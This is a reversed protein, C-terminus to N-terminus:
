PKRTITSWRHKEPMVGSFGELERKVPRKAVPEKRNGPLGSMEKELIGLHERVDKLSNSKV